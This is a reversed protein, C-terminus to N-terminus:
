IEEHRGPLWDEDPVAVVFVIREDRGVRRRGDVLPLGHGVFDFAAEFVAVECASGLVGDGGQDLMGYRGVRRGRRAM